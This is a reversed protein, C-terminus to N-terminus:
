LREVLDFIGVLCRCCLYQEFTPHAWHADPNPFRQPEEISFRLDVWALNGRRVQNNVTRNNIPVWLRDKQKLFRDAEADLLEDNM